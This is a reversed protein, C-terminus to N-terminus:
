GILGRCDVSAASRHLRRLIAGNLRHYAESLSDQGDHSLSQAYDPRLNKLAALVAVAQQETLDLDIAM